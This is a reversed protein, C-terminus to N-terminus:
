QKLWPLAETKRVMPSSTNEIKFGSSDMSHDYSSGSFRFIGVAFAVALLCVTAHRVMRASNMTDIEHRM